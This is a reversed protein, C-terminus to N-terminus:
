QGTMEELEARLEEANSWAQWLVLKGERDILALSNPAGGGLSNQVCDKGIRDIMIPRNNGFSEIMELAYAQREEYTKTAKKATFDFRKDDNKESYDEGPHPERTYVNYFDVGKDKFDAAIKDM